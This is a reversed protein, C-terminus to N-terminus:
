PRWGRGFNVDGWNFGAQSSITNIPQYSFDPPNIKKLNAELEAVKNEIYADPSQSYVARMRSALAWILYSQFFREVLSDLETDLTVTDFRFRGIVTIPYPKDPLFYFYIRTGGNEREPYYHYMLSKIDQPRGVSFYDFFTAKRLPWRVNGDLLFTVSELDVLDEVLYSEQGVVAPFTQRGRYPIENQNVSKEQLILNLETLGDYVKEGTVGELQRNVLKSRYFALTIIQRALM